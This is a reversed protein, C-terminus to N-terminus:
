PKPEEPKAWRDLVELRRIRYDDSAYTFRSIYDGWEIESVKWWTRTNPDKLHALMSEPDHVDWEGAEIEAIRTERDEKEYANMRVVMQKQREHEWRLWLQAADLNGFTYRHSGGEYGVIEAIWVYNGAESM